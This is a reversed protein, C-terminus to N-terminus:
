FDGGDVAEEAPRGAPVVPGDWRLGLEEESPLPWPARVMSVGATQMAASWRDVRGKVAAHGERDLLKVAEKFAEHGARGEKRPFHHRPDFVADSPPLPRGVVAPRVATPRPGSALGMELLRRLADQDTRLRQQFRFEDIQAWLSGSVVLAKRVVHEDM